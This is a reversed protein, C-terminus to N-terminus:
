YHKSWYDSLTDLIADLQERKDSELCDLIMIENMGYENLEQGIRDAEAGLRVLKRVLTERAEKKEIVIGNLARGKDCSLAELPCANVCGQCVKNDAMFM